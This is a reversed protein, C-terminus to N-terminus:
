RRREDLKNKIKAQEKALLHIKSLLNKIESEDEDIEAQLLSSHLTKYDEDLSNLKNELEMM